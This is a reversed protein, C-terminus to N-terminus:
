HGPPVALVRRRRTEALVFGGSMAVLGATLLVVGVMAPGVPGTSAPADALAPVDVRGSRFGSYLDSTASRRSASPGPVSGAFVAPEPAGGDPAAAAAGTAAIASRDLGNSGTAASSVPVRDAPAAAPDTAPTSALPTELLGAASTSASVAGPPVTEGGTDGSGPTVTPQPQVIVEFAMRGPEIEDNEPQVAILYHVGATADAPITVGVAFQPTTNAPTVTTLVVGDTADWHVRVEKGVTYGQGTVTVTRGAEGAAPYTGAPLSAPNLSGTGTCAWATAAMLLGVAALGVGICTIRRLGTM